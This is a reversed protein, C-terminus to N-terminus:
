GILLCITVTIIYCYYYNYNYNNNNNNNNNNTNNNNYGCYTIGERRAEHKPTLPSLYLVDEPLSHDININLKILVKKKGFWLNMDKDKISGPLPPTQKFRFNLQGTNIISTNKM